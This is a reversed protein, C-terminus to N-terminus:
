GAMSIYYYPLLFYRFVRLVPLWQSFDFFVPCVVLSTLIFVPILGCLLVPDKVVARMVFAFLIVMVLYILLMMMEKAASGFNGTVALTSLTSIGALCVPAALVALKCPLGSGYPLALFLGNQEDRRVSVASFIGIVMLFIALIGRVPFAIRATSTEIPQTSQTEYHFSFTKGDRGQAAYAEQLEVWLQDKDMDSFIESEDVFQKLLSKGYVEIVSAFVVEKSLQNMITSPASYVEILRKIKREDLKEKFHETFVFGCEARRSAVDDKLEQLSDCRYFEFMGDQEELSRLIGPVLDENGGYVGIRIKGSDQQEVRSFGFLALPVLILLVVFFNHKMQRKCSLLFWTIVSM